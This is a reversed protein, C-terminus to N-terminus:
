WALSPCAQAPRCSLAFVLSILNKLQGAGTLIPFQGTNLLLVFEIRSASLSCCHHVYVQNLQCRSVLGCQLACCWISVVNRGVSSRERGAGVEEGHVCCVLIVDRLSRSQRCCCSAACYIKLELLNAPWAIDAHEVWRVSPGLARM